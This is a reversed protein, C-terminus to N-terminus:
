RKKTTALCKENGMKRMWVMEQPNALIEWISWLGASGFKNLWINRHLVMQSGALNNIFRWKSAGMHVWLLYVDSVWLPLLSTEQLSAKDSTRTTLRNQSKLMIQDKMWRSESFHDQLGSLWSTVSVRSLTQKKNGRQSHQPPILELPINFLLLSIFIVNPCNLTVTFSFHLIHSLPKSFTNNIINCLPSRARAGTMPILM